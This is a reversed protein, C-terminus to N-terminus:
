RYRSHIHALSGEIEAGTGRRKGVCNQLTGLGLKEVPPALAKRDHFHAVTTIVVHGNGALGLLVQAVQEVNGRVVLHQEQLAAGALLEGLNRQVQQGFIADGVIDIGTDPRLLGDLLSTAIAGHIDRGAGLLVVVEGNRTLVLPRQGLVRGIHVVGGVLGDAAELEVPNGLGAVHRQDGVHGGVDERAREVHGAEAQDIGPRLLVDARGAQHHHDNAFVQEAAGAADTRGHEVVLDGRVVTGHVVGRRSVGPVQGAQDEFPQLLLAPHGRHLLAVAGLLVQQVLGDIGAVEVGVRDLRAGAGPHVHREAQGVLTEVLREQFAGLRAPQEVQLGGSPRRCARKWRCRGQGPRPRPAPRM